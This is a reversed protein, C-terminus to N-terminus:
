QVVHANLLFQGYERGIIPIAAQFTQVAESRPLNAQKKLLSSLLYIPIESIIGGWRDGTQMNGRDTRLNHKETSDTNVYRQEACLIEM